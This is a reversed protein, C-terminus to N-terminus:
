NFAGISAMIIKDAFGLRESIFILMPTIRLIVIPRNEESISRGAKLSSNLEM